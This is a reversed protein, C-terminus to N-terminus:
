FQGVVCWCRCIAESTVLLRVDFGFVMNPIHAGRESGSTFWFEEGLRKWLNTSDMLEDLRARDVGATVARRQSM